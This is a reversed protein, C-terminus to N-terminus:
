CLSSMNNLKGSLQPHRVQELKARPVNQQHFLLISDAQGKMVAEAASDFLYLLIIFSMCKCLEIKFQLDLRFRFIQFNTSLIIMLFILWKQHIILQM